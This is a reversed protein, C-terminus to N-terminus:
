DFGSYDPWEHRWFPVDVWEYQTELVGVGGLAIVREYELLLDNQDWEVFADIVTTAASVVAAFLGGAVPAAKTLAVAIEAAIQLISERNDVWGDNTDVDWVGLAVKVEGGEVQADFITDLGAPFIHIEGDNLRFGPVAFPTREGDHEVAGLILIHDSSHISETDRCHLKELTIKANSPM